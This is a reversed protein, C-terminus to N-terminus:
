KKERRRVREVIRAIRESEVPRADLEERRVPKGDLYRRGITIM